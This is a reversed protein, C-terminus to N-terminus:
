WSWGRPTVLEMGEMPHMKCKKAQAFLLLFSLCSEGQWSPEAAPHLPTQWPSRRPGQDRAPCLLLQTGAKEDMFPISKCSIQDIKFFVSSVQRQYFSIIDWTRGLIERSFWVMNKKRGGGRETKGSATISLHKKYSWLLFCKEVSAHRKLPSPINKHPWSPFMEAVVLLKSDLCTNSWFFSVKLMVWLKGLLSHLQEFVRQLMLGWFGKQGHCVEACAISAEHVGGFGARM